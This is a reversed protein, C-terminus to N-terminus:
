IFSYKTDKILMKTDVYSKKDSFHAIWGDGLIGAIKGNGFEIHNIETGLKISHKIKNFVDRKLEDRFVYENIEIGDYYEVYKAFGALFLDYKDSHICNFVEGSPLGILINQSM